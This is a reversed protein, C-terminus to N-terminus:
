ESVIRFPAAYVNMTEGRLFGILTINLSRAMEIALSSPASVACLVPMRAMAAKQVLEYSVRGSVMLLRKTLPLNGALLEAGIVKDVANHRGVDEKLALLNGELDFLGAAHLGGTKAFTEQGRRMTENLSYLVRVPIKHTMAPLPPVACALTSLSSKGCVGCSSSTLFHRNLRLADNGRGGAKLTVNLISEPAAPTDAHEMGAIDWASPLINEAFLFGAALAFDEGPTRMTVALSEGHLRIELPSEVAAADTVAEATEGRWRLIETESHM